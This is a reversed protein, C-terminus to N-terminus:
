YGIHEVEKLTYKGNENLITYRYIPLKNAHENIWYTDDQMEETTNFDEKLDLGDKNGIVLHFKTIEGADNEEYSYSGILAYTYVYINDNSKTVEKVIQHKFVGAFGIPIPSFSNNEANYYYISKELNPELYEETNIDVNGFIKKVEKDVSNLSLDVKSTDEKGNLMKDIAIDVMKINSFPSSIEEYVFPLWEIVKQKTSDKVQVETETKVIPEEVKNADSSNESYISINKDEKSIYIILFVMAVALILILALILMTRKKNTENM